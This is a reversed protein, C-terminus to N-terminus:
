NKPNQLIVAFKFLDFKAYIKCRTFHPSFIIFQPIPLPTVPPPVPNTAASVNNKASSFGSIRLTVLPEIHTM